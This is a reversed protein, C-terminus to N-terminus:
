KDNFRTGKIHVKVNLDKSYNFFDENSNLEKNFFKKIIDPIILTSMKKDISYGTEDNLNKVLFFSNGVYNQNNQNELKKRWWHDSSIILLVENLEKKRIENILEKTFFDVYLYRM